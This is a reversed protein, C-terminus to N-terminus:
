ARSAKPLVQCIVARRKGGGLGDPFVVIGAEDYPVIVPSLKRIDIELILRPRLDAALSSLL